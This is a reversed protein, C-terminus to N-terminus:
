GGVVLAEYSTDILDAQSIGLERMLFAVKAQQEVEQVESGDFVAELELFTGLGEVRDLHIRVNDLLHIEREKTVVRHHGLLETLLERLSGPDEVPIVRYDSRRPGRRDPRRYPILQGGSLSSERLKLRGRRTRFYTDRQRDLGLRLAGLRRAVARAAALDACRAKIELNARGPEGTASRAQSGEVPSGMSAMSGQADLGSGVGSGEGPVRLLTVSGSM